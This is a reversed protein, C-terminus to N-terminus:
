AENLEFVREVIDDIREYHLVGPEEEAEIGLSIGWPSCGPNELFSELMDLTPFHLYCHGAVDEFAALENPHNISLEIRIERDHEEGTKVWQKLEDPNSDANARIIIGGSTHMLVLDSWEEQPLTIHGYSFTKEVEPLEELSAVNMELVIEPGSLWQVMNWIMPVSLKRNDGRELSFGVLDFGVAASYRADQLNTLHSIKLRMRAMNLVNM